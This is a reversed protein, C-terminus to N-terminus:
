GQGLREFTLPLRSVTIPVCFVPNSKIMIWSIVGLEKRNLRGADERVEQVAKLQLVADSGSRM